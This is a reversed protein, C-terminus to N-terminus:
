AAVRRQRRGWAGEATKIIGNGARTARIAAVKVASVELRGSKTGHRKARDIGAQVPERIM